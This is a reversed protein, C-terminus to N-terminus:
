RRPNSGCNNGGYFPSNHSPSCRVTGGMLKKIKNKVVKMKALLRDIHVTVTDM